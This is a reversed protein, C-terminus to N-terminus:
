FECELLERTAPRFTSPRYQTFYYGRVAKESYRRVAAATRLVALSANASLSNPCAKLIRSHERTINTAEKLHRHPDRCSKSLPQFRFDALFHSIHQFRYGHRYLRIFFDLDMAFHLNENLLVGHDIIRRRFFMATTPIFLVRHYILVLPSFTIERRLQTIQGQPDIWTYDGYIIDAEPRDRFAQLVRSFCEPRYRDDANLWGIIDGTAARFGKNLAHSQGNDPESVWQLHEHGGASAFAALVPVSEDSSGGDFVLHEVSAGHQSAVSELCERIYPGQNFSPTVISFKPQTM